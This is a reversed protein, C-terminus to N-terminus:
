ADVEKRELMAAVAARCVAESLTDGSHWHDPRGNWGTTGHPTFGAWWQADDDTTWPSRMECWYGHERMERIVEWGWFMQRSDVLVVPGYHKYVYRQVLEGLEAGSATVEADSRDESPAIERVSVSGPGIIIEQESM